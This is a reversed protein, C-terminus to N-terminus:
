NPEKNVYLGTTINTKLLSLTETYLTIELPARFSFPQSCANPTLLAM